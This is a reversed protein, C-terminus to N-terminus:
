DTRSLGDNEIWEKISVYKSMGTKKQICVTGQIPDIIMDFEENGIVFDFDPFVKHLRADRFYIKGDIQDISQYLFLKNFVKAM